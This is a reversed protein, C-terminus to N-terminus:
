TSVEESGQNGTESRGDHEVEALMVRQAGTTLNSNVYDIGRYLIWRMVAQDMLDDTVNDVVDAFIGGLQKRSAAKEKDCLDYTYPLRLTHSATAMDAARRMLDIATKRQDTQGTKLDEIVLM